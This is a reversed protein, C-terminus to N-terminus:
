KVRQVLMRLFRIATDRDSTGGNVAVILVHRGTNASATWGLFDNGSWGYLGVGKLEQYGEADKHPEYYSTDEIIQIQALSSDDTTAAWQCGAIASEGAAVPVGLLKTIEGPTFLSCSKDPPTAAQAALDGSGLLLLFSALLMVAVCPPRDLSM